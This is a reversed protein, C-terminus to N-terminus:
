RNTTNNFVGEAKIFALKEFRSIHMLNCNDEETLLCVELIKMTQSYKDSLVKLENVNFNQGINQLKPLLNIDQDILVSNYYIKICKLNPCSQQILKVYNDIDNQDEYNEYNEHSEYGRLNLEELKHGYNNFFSLVEEDSSNSVYYTLSKIHHCYQGILSLVENSVKFDLVVKIINPCNKLVSELSQCDVTLTLESDAMRRILRKLSNKTEEEKLEIVFQKNFVLRRWQKSVCELRVKDEFTLYQLILETLDDGFRDFCNKAYVKMQTIVTTINLLTM